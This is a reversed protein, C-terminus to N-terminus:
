SIYVIAVEVVKIDNDIAACIIRIGHLSDVRCCHQKSAMNIHAIERQGAKMGIKLAAPLTFPRMQAGGAQALRRWLDDVM